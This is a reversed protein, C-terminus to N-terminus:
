FLQKELKLNMGETLENTISALNVSNVFRDRM